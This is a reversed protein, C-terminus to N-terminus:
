ETMTQTPFKFKFKYFFLRNISLQILKKLISLPGTNPRKKRPMKTGIEFELPAIQPVKTLRTKEMHSNTPNLRYSM